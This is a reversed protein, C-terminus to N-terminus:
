CHRNQKYAETFAINKFKQFSNKLPSKTGRLDIDYTM